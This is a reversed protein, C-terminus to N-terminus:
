EMYNTCGCVLCRNNLGKHLDISHNCKSCEPIFSNIIIRPQNNEKMTNNEYEPLIVKVQEEDEIKFKKM